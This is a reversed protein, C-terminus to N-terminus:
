SNARIKGHIIYSVTPQSIGVAKALQPQSMTGGLQRANIRIYDISESPIRVRGDQKDKKADVKAQRAVPQLTGDEALVHPVKSRRVKVELNTSTKKAAM